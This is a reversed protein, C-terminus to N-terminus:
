EAVAAEAGVHEVRQAKGHEASGVEGIGITEPGRAPHDLRVGRLERRHDHLREHLPGGAHLQGIGAIHRLERVGAAGVVHQQDAVLDRGPETAGARQERTSCAPM